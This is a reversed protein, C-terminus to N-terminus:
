AEVPIGEIISVPSGTEIIRELKFGSAEYLEAFQSATREKGSPIVLMLLDFYKNFSNFTGNMTNPAIVGDVILMKSMPKMAQRCTKLIKIAHEDDWNHICYKILYADAGTPVAEFFNGAVLECRQKLSQEIHQRAGEIVPPRDFLIGKLTPYSQLLTMLLSGHGGGIDALTSFSSFDYSTAIAKNSLQSLSTLGRDFTKGDEPHEALYEFVSTGHCHDFAKKGTQVSYDLEEWTRWFWTDGFLLVFHHMSDPVDTRLKTSLPTHAFTGEEVEAFIDFSALARLLRYLLLEHAQTAEALEKSSKPGDRLLDAIGLKATTYISRAISIGQLMEMITFAQTDM